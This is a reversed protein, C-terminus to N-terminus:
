ELKKNLFLINGKENYTPRFGYADMLSIGRSNEMEEEPMPNPRKWDFGEGEDEVRMELEEPKLSLQCTVNKREQNQNGHIVANVLAERLILEAGFYDIKKKKNKLFGIMAKTARDVNRLNSAFVVKVTKDKKTVEFIESKVEVGLIVIDDDQDEPNAQLLKLTTDTLDELACTRLPACVKLMTDMCSSWIVKEKANELLGDTYLLFRDGPITKLTEKQYRVEEFMGLIPGFNQILRPEGVKPLFLIPPHGATVIEATSTKRNVKLLCATLYKESPLIEVLVQNIMQMSEEPTYMPACNQQLLAKVSSTLYGTGIDHGSMDAVFYIFIDNSVALVDFFDGGAEEISSFHVVFNAEPLEKPTILLSKQADHLQKAKAAQNQILAIMSLSLKLHLRVRAKVEEVHFPKTIYDVAGLSFGQLKSNVDDKGTIFIVPIQFTRKDDKLKQIVEFGDEGPMGIDLIILSPNEHLAIERGEPGNKSTYIVYGEKELTSELVRLNIPNDDVILISHSEKM